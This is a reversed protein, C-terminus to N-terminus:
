TVFRIDLICQTHMGKVEMMTSFTSSLFSVIKGHDKVNLLIHTHAYIYTHTYIHIYIYTYIYIHIIYAYIYM